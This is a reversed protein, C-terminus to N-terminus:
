SAAHTRALELFLDSSRLLGLVMKGGGEGVITELRKWASFAANWRGRSESGLGSALLNRDALGFEQPWHDVLVASGDDRHESTFRYSVQGIGLVGGVDNLDNDVMMVLVLDPAYSSVRHTLYTASNIASWSGVGLSYVEVEKDGIRVNLERLIQQIQ